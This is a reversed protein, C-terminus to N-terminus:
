VRHSCRSRKPCQVSTRTAPPRWRSGTRCLWTTPLRSAPSRSTAASTLTRRRGYDALRPEDLLEGAAATVGAGMIAINTYGPRTNRRFIAWAAHGLSRRMAGVLDSSLRDGHDALVLALRMGCFDAWNWDLPAMEALSEEALWPWIGYTASVPDANQLTLVRAIVDAARRHDAADDSRLLALAYDLATHTPAGVRRQSRPQPLRPREV